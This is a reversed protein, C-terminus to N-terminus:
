FTAIVEFCDTNDVDVFLICVLVCVIFTFIIIKRNINLLDWNCILFYNIRFDFLIDIFAHILIIFIITNNSPSLDIKISPKTM